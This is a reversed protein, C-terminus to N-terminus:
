QLVVKNLIFEGCWHTSQVAPWFAMQAIGGAAPVIQGHPPFRRCVTQRHLSADTDTEFYFLCTGCRELPDESM